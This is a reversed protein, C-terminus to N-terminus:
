CGTEINKYLRKRKTVRQYKQSATDLKLARMHKKKTVPQRHQSAMYVEM